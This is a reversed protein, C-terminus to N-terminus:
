SVWRVDIVNRGHKEVLRDIFREAQRETRFTRRGWEKGNDGHVWYTVEIENM